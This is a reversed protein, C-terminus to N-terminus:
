DASLLITNGDPDNVTAFHTGISAVFPAHHSEYGLGTLETYKRDVAARDKSYFEFIVRADDLEEVLGPSNLFFTLGGHMKVEVHPRGESGEPIAVGLRRYFELSKDMNRAIIGIMYIEQAVTASREYTTYFTNGM